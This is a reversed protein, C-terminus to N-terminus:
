FTRQFFRNANEFFLKDVINKDSISQVMFDYLNAIKEVSNLDEPMDAGDFDSGLALTNEGGLALFHEVHRLIDTFDPKGKGQERLFKTFFNIGVLGGRKAIECFQDDRLNRSVGCVARANSHTAIFPKTAIELLDDFGVDSLHSADVVIGCRELEAVAERGFPKLRLNAPSGSGLENEGNWTLTLFCVGDEKLRQIRSLDGALASGGEVALLAAIKGSKLTRELEAGTKAQAIRESHRELESQFHRLNVAYYDVAAQGRLDDAVFVAFTQAYREFHPRDISLQHTTNVLGEGTKRLDTITDCHLDFVNM